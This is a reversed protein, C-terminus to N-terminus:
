RALQRQGWRRRRRTQPPQLLARGRAQRVRALRPSSSHGRHEGREPWPSFSRGGRPQGRLPWRGSQPSSSRGGTSLGRAVLRLASLAGEEKSAASPGSPPQFFAGTHEGCEPWASPQFFARERAPRMPALSLASLAGEEEGAAKPGSLPQFFAGALVAQRARDIGMAIQQGPGKM